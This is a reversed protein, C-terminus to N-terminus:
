YKKFNVEITLTVAVPRGQHMAPKFRYQKIAKIAEADFDPNYSRSIHVEHPMGQGDVILHVLVIASFGVKANHASKPFEAESSKLVVPPTVDKGIKYIQGFPSSQDPKQTPSQPQITVAMAAIGLGVSLLIIAAPLLLGYKLLAGVQHKKMSLRMIRKELINADFIGIPHIAPVRAALAVMTALRLLSRSYSHSDMHFETVMDDCVMERTQTIQAKIAWIAPHFVLPVTVVEYFLNKQFDRRNLHACEHATAALFDRPACQAAFDPPLLLAPKLFGLAVPGSVQSSVLIRAKDLSFARKCEHWIEDQEPTLTAPDARRLLAAAGLLSALLRGTFYLITASYIVLSSWLVAGPVIFDQRSNPAGDQAAFFIVSSHLGAAQSAVLSVALARLVPLAPAVVAITLTSVWVSHEAKPGLRKVLRSALWGAAACLVVEWVANALYSASFASFSSM